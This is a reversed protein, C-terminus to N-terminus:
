WAHSPADHHTPALCWRTVYLGSCLVDCPIFPVGEGDPAGADVEVVEGGQTGRDIEVPTTSFEVVMSDTVRHRADKVSM